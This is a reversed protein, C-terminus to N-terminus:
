KWGGPMKSKSRAQSRLYQAAQKLFDGTKHFCQRNAKADNVAEGISGDFAQGTHSDRAPVRLEELATQEEDPLTASYSLFEDVAARSKGADASQDELLVGAIKELQDITERRIGSTLSHQKVDLAALGKGLPHRVIAKIDAATFMEKSLPNRMVGRNVKLASALEEMDWAYGDESVWFNSRPISAIPELGMTTGDENQYVKGLVEHEIHMFAVDATFAIAIPLVEKIAQARRKTADRVKDLNSSHHENRLWRAYSDLDAFIADEPKSSSQVSTAVAHASQPQRVKLVARSRGDAIAKVDAIKGSFDLDPCMTQYIQLDKVLDKADAMLSRIEAELESIRADDGAQRAISSPVSRAQGTEFKMGRPGKNVRFSSKADKDGPRLELVKKWEAQASDQWGFLAYQDALLKRAEIATPDDEIAQLLESVFTFDAEGSPGAM